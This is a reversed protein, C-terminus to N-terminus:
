EDVQAVVDRREDHRVSVQEDRALEGHGVVPDVREQLVLDAGVHHGVGVAPGLRQAHEGAPEGAVLRELLPEREQGLVQDTAEVRISKAQDRRARDRHPPHDVTDGERGHDGLEAIAVPNGRADGEAHRDADEAAAAEGLIRDVQAAQQLEEVVEGGAARELREQDALDRELM